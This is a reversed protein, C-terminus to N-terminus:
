AAAGEPAAQGASGQLLASQGHLGASQRRGEARAAQDAGDPRQLGAAASPELIEAMGGGARAACLGIVADRVARADGVRHPGRYISILFASRGSRSCFAPPSIAGAGSWGPMAMSGSRAASRDDRDGGMCTLRGRPAARRTTECSPHFPRATLRALALRMGARCQGRLGGAARGHAHAPCARLLPEPPDNEHGSVDPSELRPFDRPNKKAPNM